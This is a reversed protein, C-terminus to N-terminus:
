KDETQKTNNFQKSKSFSKAFITVQKFGSYNILLGELLNWNEELLQVQLQMSFLDIIKQDLLLLDLQILELSVLIVAELIIFLLLLMQLLYGRFSFMLDNSLYKFIFHSSVLLSMKM